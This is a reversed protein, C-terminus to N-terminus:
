AKDIDIRLFVEFVKLQEKVLQNRAQKLIPKPKFDAVMLLAPSNPFDRSPTPSCSQQQDSIKRRLEDSM